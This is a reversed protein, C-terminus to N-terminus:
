ITTLFRGAMTQYILILRM